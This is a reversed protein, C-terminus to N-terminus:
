CSEIAAFPLLHKRKSRFQGSRTLTRQCLGYNSQAVHTTARNSSFEVLLNIVSLGIGKYTAPTNKQGFTATRYIRGVWQQISASLFPSAAGEQYIQM